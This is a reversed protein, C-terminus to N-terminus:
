ARDIARVAIGAADMCRRVHAESPARCVMRREPAVVRSDVDGCEIDVEPFRDGVGDLALRLDIEPEIDTVVLFRPV